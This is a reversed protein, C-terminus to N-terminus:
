TNKHEYTVKGRLSSIQYEIKFSSLVDSPIKLEKMLYDSAKAYIIIDKLGSKLDERSLNVAVTIVVEEKKIFYVLVRKEKSRKFM